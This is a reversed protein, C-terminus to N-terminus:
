NATSLTVAVQVVDSKLPRRYDLQILWTDDKRTVSRAYVNVVGAELDQPRELEFDATWLSEHPNSRDRVDINASDWGQSRPQITVIYMTSGDCVLSTIVRPEYPKLGVYIDGVILFEKPLGYAGPTQVASTYVNRAPGSLDRFTQSYINIHGSPAPCNTTAAVVESTFQGIVESRTPILSRSSTAGSSEVSQSSSQSGSQLLAQRLLSAPPSDPSHDRFTPCYRQGIPRIWEADVLTQGDSELYLKKVPVTRVSSVILFDVPLERTFSAVSMRTQSQALRPAFIVTSWDPYQRLSFTLGGVTVEPIGWRLLDAVGAWVDNHVTYSVELPGDLRTQDLLEVDPTTCVAGRKVIARGFFEREADAVVARQAHSLLLSGGVIGVLAICLTVASLQAQIISGRSQKGHDSPKDIAELKRVSAAVGLLLLASFWALAGWGYGFVWSSGGGSDAPFEVLWFTTLSLLIASWALTLAPRGRRLFLIAWIFFVNAFWALNGTYFVGLWGVLLISIGWITEIPEFSIVAPLGLSATWLFAATLALKSSNRM